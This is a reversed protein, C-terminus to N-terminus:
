APPLKKRMLRSITAPKINFFGLLSRTLEDAQKDTIKPDQLRMANFRSASSNVILHVMQMDDCRAEGAAIARRVDAEAAASYMAQTATVEPTLQSLFRATEEHTTVMRLYLRTRVCVREVPDTVSEMRANVSEEFHFLAEIAAARLLDNKSEFHNYLSTLSVDAADAIAQVSISAGEEAGLERTARILADTTAQRRRTHRSVNQPM